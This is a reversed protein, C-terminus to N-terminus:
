IHCDVVILYHEPDATKIFTDYYSNSFAAAEEPTESSMGFWGMEGKSHWKGDATLVAFTGFALSDQIYNEKTGYHQAYYEPKCWGKGAAVKDWEEALEDAQRQIEASMHFPVKFGAVMAMVEEERLDDVVDAAADAPAGLFFIDKIKALDAKSGNKLSLLDSWRGGVVYGDWKHNPNEWYGYLGTEEDKNYGAYDEMYEDFTAYVQKAPVRERVLDEPVITETYGKANKVKFREDYPSVYTGDELKVQQITDKEYKERYEEEVNNFALYEKPCDGMNNEQYPAMLKKLKKPDDTIVAVTFHSM